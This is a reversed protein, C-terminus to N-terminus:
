NGKDELYDLLKNISYIIAEKRTKCTNVGRKMLMNKSHIEFGYSEFNWFAGGYYVLNWETIELKEILWEMMQQTTPIVYYKRNEKCYYYQEDYDFDRLPKSDLPAGLKLAQKTQEYTCYNTYQKM